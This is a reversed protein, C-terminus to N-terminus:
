IRVHGHIQCAYKRSSEFEDNATDNNDECKNCLCIRSALLTSVMLM